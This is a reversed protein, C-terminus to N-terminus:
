HKANQHKNKLKFYNFSIVCTSAECASMFFFLLISIQVSM